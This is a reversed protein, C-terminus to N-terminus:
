EEARTLKEASKLMGRMGFQWLRPLYRSGFAMIKGAPSLVKKFRRRRVVNLILRAVKEPQQQIWAPRDQIPMTSGDPKVTLKRPDNKTFGVYVIGVHIGKGTLETKLSQGLATLAMKSMSYVASYPIGHLGAISSIFVISGKTKEIYPLALKAGRFPGLANVRLVSELMADETDSILGSSSLGANLILVDLQGFHSVTAEIAERFAMTESVDAPIQLIRDKFESFEEATENLVIKDRGNLVVKAGAKLFKHATYKGIGKSSGTIFVVKNTFKGM